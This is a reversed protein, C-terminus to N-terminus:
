INIQVRYESPTRGKIKEFQKIFYPVNNYGSEYAIQAITLNSYMLLKCSHGIRIEALCQFISKDTRQKFYRCLASPNHGVYVAIENLTIKDKFHNFLYTYVRNVPENAEKLINSSNYAIESLTGIRKCKCLCDLIQLLNILRATHETKELEQFRQFLEDYLDTDYFRIGYQSKQLLEYIPRYDPLQNLSMPFITPHFQLAVGASTELVSGSNLKANCLHLHPVNSGIMAIDGKRYDRVGEGVFQKGSGQTFLMIEYEAHKHRPLVFQPYIIRSCLTARDHIIKRELISM